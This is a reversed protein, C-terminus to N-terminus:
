GVALSREGGSEGAERFAGHITMAECRTLMQTPASIRLKSQPYATLAIGHSRFVDQWDGRLWRHSEAKRQVLLIASRTTPHVRLPAWKSSSICSEITDLNRLRAAFRNMAEAGVPTDVLAARCAIMPWVNVTEQPPPAGIDDFYESFAFLADDTRFSGAAWRAQQSVIAIGLPVGAELWKHAGAIVFDTDHVGLEDPVQAIAQSSDAVVFAAPFRSKLHRAIRDAPLRIGDHSVAPLMLGDCCHREFDEAIRNLLDDSTAQELGLHRLSCLATKVGASRLISRVISYYRQWCLDVFLVKRCRLAFCRAASRVLVSSRNALLCTSGAPAGTMELLTSKLEAVGHWTAIGPSRQQTARPLESAGNRLFTEGYLTLPEEGALRAFDRVALQACRNMRGLRATDLYLGAPIPM